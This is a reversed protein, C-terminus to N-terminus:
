SAGTAEDACGDQVKEISPPVTFAVTEGVEHVGLQLVQTAPLASPQPTELTCAPPPVVSVTATGNRSGDAVSTAVVHFGGPLLPATYLGDASITGGLDETVTWAVKQDTGGVVTATFQQTQGVGVFTSAPSVTV